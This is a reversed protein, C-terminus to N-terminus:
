IHIHCVMTNIISVKSLVKMDSSSIEQELLTKKKKIMVGHKVLEKGWVQVRFHLICPARVNILM